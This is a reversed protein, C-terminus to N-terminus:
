VKLPWLCICLGTQSGARCIYEVESEVTILMFCITLFVCMSVSTGEDTSNVPKATQENSHTKLLTNDFCPGSRGWLGM